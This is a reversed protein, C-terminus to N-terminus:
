SELWKELDMAARCGDGAATIAQRYITDEVDGAIFIGEIESMTRHKPQLYGAEDMTLKGKVFNSNPIHGIAVFLGDIQLEKEEGTKTDEIIVHDLKDDGVLKTIKSWEIFEIKENQKARELMIKSARYTESRHILYVKSGFKTLFMAEEMASDGGGVIAMVKGRYFFGDCTACSHYGKGIFREEDELGLYKASAGSAIIIGDYETEGTDHVVTYKHTTQDIKINSVTSYIANAGFREAQKQMNMMLDPGMIGDIFGPFNEIETTTTLQGGPQIGMYIDTELQARSTYIAATLGSPGSGIIAIKSHTTQKTETMSQTINSKYVQNIKDIIQTKGQSGGLEILIQMPKGANFKVVFFRPITPIYFNFESILDRNEDRNIKAFKLTTEGQFHQEVETIIPDMIKCPGCWDAYFDLFYYDNSSAVLDRFEGSNHIINM